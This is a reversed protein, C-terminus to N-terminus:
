FINPYKMRSWAALNGSYGGGIAIFAKRRANYTVRIHKVLEVYDMMANEATLYKVAPQKFADEESVPMSQGFYRHEAFVVLGHWKNALFQTIFGSNRYQEWIDGNDGMYFLVPRLYEKNTIRNFYSDDVIYRM